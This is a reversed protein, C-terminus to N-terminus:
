KKNTEYKLLLIFIIKVAIKSNDSSNSFQKEFSNVGDRKFKDVKWSVDLPKIEDNM